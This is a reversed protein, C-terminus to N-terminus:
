TAGGLLRHPGAKPVLIRRGIRITPIDGNNVAEYAFARSIGLAMAAEEVTMTLRDESSPLPKTRRVQTNEPVDVVLPETVAPAPPDM